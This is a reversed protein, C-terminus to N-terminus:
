LPPIGTRQRRHRHLRHLVILLLLLLLRLALLLLLPLLLLLLLVIVPPEARVRLALGFEVAGVLAQQQATKEGGTVSAAGEQPGPAHHM